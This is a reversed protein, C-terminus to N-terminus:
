SGVFRFRTLFLSPPQLVFAFLETWGWVSEAEQALEENWFGNLFWIAQEAYTKSTLTVWDQQQAATVKSM